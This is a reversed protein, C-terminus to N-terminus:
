LSTFPQLSTLPQSARSFMKKGICSHNSGWGGTGAATSTSRLALACHSCGPWLPGALARQAGQLAAPAKPCSWCKRQTKETQLAQLLSLFAHWGVAFTSVYCSAAHALHPWPFSTGRPSLCLLTSYLYAFRSCIEWVLDEPWGSTLQKGRPM